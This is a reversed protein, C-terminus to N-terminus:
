ALNTNTELNHVVEALKLMCQPQGMEAEAQKKIRRFIMFRTKLPVCIYQGNGM